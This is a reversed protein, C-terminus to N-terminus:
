ARTILSIPGGNNKPSTARGRRKSSSLVAYVLVAVLVTRILPSSAHVIAYGLYPVHGVVRGAQHELTLVSGTLITPEMSGSYVILPRLDQPVMLLIGAAVALLAIM